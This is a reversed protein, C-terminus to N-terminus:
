KGIHKFTGDPRVICTNYGTIRNNEDWMIKTMYSNRGCQKASAKALDFAKRQDTFRMSMGYEGGIVDFATRM